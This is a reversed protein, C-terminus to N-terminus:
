TFRLGLEGLGSTEVRLHQGPRVPTLPIVSGAMIVDGAHLALGAQSLERAVFAVVEPLTGIVSAPDRESAALEDDLWAAIEVGDIGGGAYRASRSGLVFGRHFIDGALLEAVDSLPRDLAVVEIAPGVAAIGAAATALDPDAPLETAIEIALEAEIMPREWGALAVSSDPALQTADTLFGLLSQEIGAAARSAPTTLGVKWGRHGAGGAIRDARIRLQARM